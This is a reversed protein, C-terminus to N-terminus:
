ETVHTEQAQGQEVGDADEEEHACRTLARLNREENPQGVGHGAGCRHACENVGGGHHGRADVHDRAEVTKVNKRGRGQGHDGRHSRGGGEEAGGDAQRLVVDFLHEGIGGYALQAVHHEAYAHGGEAGADEM